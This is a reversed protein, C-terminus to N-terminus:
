RTFLGLLKDGIWGLFWGTISLVIAPGVALAVMTLVLQPRIEDPSGQPIQPYILSVMIISLGLGAGFGIASLSDRFWMM